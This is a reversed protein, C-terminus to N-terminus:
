TAQAVHKRSRWAKERVSRNYLYYFKTRHSSAALFVATDSTCTALARAFAVNCTVLQVPCGHAVCVRTHTFACKYAFLRFDAYMFTHTHAHTHTDSRRLLEGIESNLQEIATNAAELCAQLNAIDATMQLEVKSHELLLVDRSGTVFALRDELRSVVATLTEQV